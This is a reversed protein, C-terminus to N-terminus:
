PHYEISYRHCERNNRYCEGAKIMGVKQALHLSSVNNKDIIATICPINLEIFCYNIINTVFEKAYGLGQYTTDLLYGIEYIEEDGLMKLEIGCRGILHNNEKLFVGWLGYGYYDYINQIYAKHKELEVDLNNTFDDLFELIGPQQYIHFLDPIDELTLEKIILRDTTLITLPRNNAEYIKKVFAHDVEDFGEVLIAAQSLDQNGSNPNAYGICTINAARAATVGHYSDEIVICENPQVGLRKAAALFIDPAPKPHAVSMGSIYDHFYKRIQLSDMVECIEESSSSSAIILKAGNKHLDKILDIVYPVVTHGEKKLFYRKMENNLELLEEPTNNLQFDKIIQQCMSYATRGIFNQVYDMTINLGIKELAAIVARAHMPESDIIVGDMDFIVAKLM